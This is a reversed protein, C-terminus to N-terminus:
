RSGDYSTVNELLHAGYRAGGRLLTTSPTASYRIQVIHPIAMRSPNHRINHSLQM